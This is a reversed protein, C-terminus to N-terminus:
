APAAATEGLGVLGAVRERHQRPTGLLQSSVRARKLFFHVDHEWTFGIGGFTQIADHTVANAADSARAKAMSAALPLSEPEADAAWAAYYLLSRAEEVEWLMNALRHSVAQYAGIPRGFQEREKAYETAMDLARQAVGVLEASLAVIGVDVAPGVDGPLPDGGEAGARFYARTTDIVDLRELNAADAEVLRAGEGENLVLVAAGAAAGVVPEDEATFAAAARQDGSAIGPLWRSRQEDSGATEVLAGAFANSIMPSPACAYGLEEQLIVLELVGLGQGGYEESIAIGAWGLECMEAWIADDYPSESEALERVKEPKFRAAIFERATSKIERQEDSFDFDV